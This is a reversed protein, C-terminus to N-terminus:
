DYLNKDNELIHNQVLLILLKKVDKKKKLSALRKSVMLAFDYLSNIKDLFTFTFDSLQTRSKTVGYVTAQWTERDMPNELCSYQLPNGHGGGPSRGSGPVSGLDGGIRPSEKDDSGGCFGLFIPTHLRDRKWPIKRVWSDFQPRRCQLHISVLQAVLSTLERQASM